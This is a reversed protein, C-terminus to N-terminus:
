TVVSVTLATEFGGGIQRLTHTKSRWTPYTVSEESKTVSEGEGKPYTVSEKAKTGSLIASFLM